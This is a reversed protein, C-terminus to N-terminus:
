MGCVDYVLPNLLFEERCAKHYTPVLYLKNNFEITNQNYVMTSKYPYIRKGCVDCTLNLATRSVVIWTHLKNYETFM